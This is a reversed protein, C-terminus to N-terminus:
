RGRPPPSQPSRTEVERRYIELTRKAMTDWSMEPLEMAERNIAGMTGTECTVVQQLADLLSAPNGSDFLVRGEPPLGASICPANPLVLSCGFSAATLVSGSTLQNRFPFAVADAARFYGYLRDESIHEPVLMIRPDSAEQSRLWHLLTPSSVQGAALLRLHNGPLRRFATVLEEIGKYAQLRGIFGLCFHEDSIGLQRRVATRGPTEPYCRVYSAHPVVQFKRRERERLDFHRAAEAAAAESHVIVAHATRFMAQRICRDLRPFACDHSVKNHLTWVIRVGLLRLLGLQLFFLMTAILSRLLTPRLTDVHIWQQHLIDPIQRNALLSRLHSLRVRRTWKLFHIGRGALAENLRSQYPNSGIYHPLSLVTLPKLSSEPSPSASPM